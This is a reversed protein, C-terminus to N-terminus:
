NKRLLFQERIEKLVESKYHCVIFFKSLCQRYLSMCVAHCRNLETYATNSPTYIFHTQSVAFDDLPFSLRASIELGNKTKLYQVVFSKCIVSWNQFTRYLLCSSRKFKFNM